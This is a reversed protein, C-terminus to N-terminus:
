RYVQLVLDANILPNSHELEAGEGLDLIKVKLVKALYGLISSELIRFGRVM